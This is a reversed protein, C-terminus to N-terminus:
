WIWIGLTKLIMFGISWSFFSVWDRHNIQRNRFKIGNGDFGKLIMAQHIREAKDLTRLLLSGLFSGLHFLSIKDKLGSRLKYALEMSKIESLLVSIYRYTLSIQTVFLYPLNLGLLAEEIIIENAMLYTTSIILVSKIMLTLLSIFGYSVSLGMFVFYDKDFFPNLIGIGLFIPELWLVRKMIQKLSLKSVSFLIIPYLSMPILAMFAYKGFSIVVASFVVTTLLKISHHRNTLASNHSKDINM